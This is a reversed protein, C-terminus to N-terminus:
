NMHSEVFVEVSPQTIQLMQSQFIRRRILLNELQLPRPDDVVLRCKILSVADENSSVAALSHHDGYSENHFPKEDKSHRDNASPLM